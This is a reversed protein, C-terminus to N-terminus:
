KTSPTAPPTLLLNGVGDVPETTFSKQLISQPTSPIVTPGKKPHKLLVANSYPQHLHASMAVNPRRPYAILTPKTPLPATQTQLYESAMESSGNGNDTAENGQTELQYNEIYQSPDVPSAAHSYPYGTAAGTAAQAQYMFEPAYQVSPLNAAYYYAPNANLYPSTASPQAITWHAAPPLWQTSGLHYSYNTAPTIYSNQPQSLLVTSTPYASTPAVTYNDDAQLLTMANQYAYGLGNYYVANPTVERADVTPSPSQHPIHRKVAPGINLRRGRFFIPEGDKSALREADEQKEFTIFAYGRSAGGKDIIIKSDKVSGHSTFFSKLDNETTDRPIGGVFIRQPIYTGFQAGTTVTGSTM